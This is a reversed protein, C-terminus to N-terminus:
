SITQQNILSISNITAIYNSNNVKVHIELLTNSSPINQFNDFTLVQSNTNNLLDSEVIVNNNIADGELTRFPLMDRGIETEFNRNDQENDINSRLFNDYNNERQNKLGQYNFDSPEMYVAISNKSFPIADDANEVVFNKKPSSAMRLDAFALNIGFLINFIYKKVLM